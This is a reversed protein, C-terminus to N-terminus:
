GHVCVCGGVGLRSRHAASRGVMWIEFALYIKHAPGTETEIPQEQGNEEKATKKFEKRRSLDVRVDLLDTVDPRVTLKKKKKKKLFFFFGCFFFTFFCFWSLASLHAPAIKYAIM